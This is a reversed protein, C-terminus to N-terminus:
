KKYFVHMVLAHPLTIVSIIILSMLPVSIPIIEKFSLWLILITFAISLLSYPMLLKIFDFISFADNEKKFYQFEQSMVRISHLVVFYLTFGIIFPFLFFTLHILALLFIESLLRNWNMSNESFLFGLLAITIVNSVVFAWFIFSHEYFQNFGETDDFFATLSSLEGVNYYILTLLLTLGWNLFLLTKYTPRESKIDAFQSEGFHFASLLLFFIFSWLPQYLWFLFFLGILGLYIFYFKLQSMKRIRFFLVHDIAGHPIGFLLILLSSFTIQQELSINAYAQYVLFLAYLCVLFIFTFVNM